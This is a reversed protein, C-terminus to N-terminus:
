NSLGADCADPWKGERSGERPINGANGQTARTRAGSDGKRQGRERRQDECRLEAPASSPQLGKARTLAGGGGRQMKCQPIEHHGEAQESERTFSLIRCEAEM